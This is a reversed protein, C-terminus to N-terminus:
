FIPRASAGGDVVLNAGTIWRSARSALFICADGIDEPLGLRGLPATKLWSAVGSPWADELGPQWILGPSIANVRINYEGLEQAAALTYMIVGAKASSYHSHNPAPSSGEISAINIITGGDGQQIMLRAAAQTCLFISKLNADVIEDWELESMSLLPVQTYRGANNVLADLRGYASHTLEMLKEVDDPKTLDGPAIIAKGGANSIDEATEAAEAEHTRYHVVVKAGAEGFRRAIGQGIGHGGGTVIVVHGEVHFLDGILENSM